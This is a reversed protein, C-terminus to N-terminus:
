PTVETKVRLPISFICTSGKGQESEVGVTHQGAVEIFGKLAEKYEDADSSVIVAINAARVPVATGGIALLMLFAAVCTCM